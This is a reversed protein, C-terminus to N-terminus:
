VYAYSNHNAIIDYVMGDLYATFESQGSYTLYLRDVARTIAIYLLSVERQIDEELPFPFNDVNCIFVAKFELGKSSEVTSLKVGQERRKFQRKSTNNEALWYYPVNQNDLAKKLVETYDIDYKKVRYLIAIDEYELNEVTDFLPPLLASIISPFGSKNM